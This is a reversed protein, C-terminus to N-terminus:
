WCLTLRYTEAAALLGARRPAERGGHKVHVCTLLWHSLSTVSSRWWNIVSVTWRLQCSRLRDIHLKSFTWLDLTQTFNRSPLVRMIPSVRIGKWCLTPYALPLRQALFSDIQEATKTCHRSTVSIPHNPTTLTVWPWQFYRREISRM